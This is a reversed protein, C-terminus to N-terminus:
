CGPAAHSDYIIMRTLEIGSWEGDEWRFGHPSVVASPGHVGYPQLRSASDPRDLEEDLTCFYLSGPATDPLGHRGIDGERREMSGLAEVPSVLHLQFFRRGPAWVAFTWRGDADPHAGPMLPEESFV